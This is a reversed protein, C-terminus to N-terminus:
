RDAPVGNARYGPLLTCSQSGPTALDWGRSPNQNQPTLELFLPSAGAGKKMEETTAKQHVNSGAPSDLSKRYVCPSGRRRKKAWYSKEPSVGTVYV